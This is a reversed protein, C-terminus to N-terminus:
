DNNVHQLKPHQTNHGLMDAYMDGPADHGAGASHLSCESRPLM